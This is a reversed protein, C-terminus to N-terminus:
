SDLFGKSFERFCIAKILFKVLTKVMGRKFTTAPFHFMESAIKVLSNIQSHSFLIYWIQTNHKNTFVLLVKFAFM